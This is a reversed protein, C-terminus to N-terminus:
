GDRLLRLAGWKLISDFVDILLRLAARKTKFQSFTNHGGGYTSPIIHIHLYALSLLQFECPLPVLGFTGRSRNSPFINNDGDHGPEVKRNPKTREAM